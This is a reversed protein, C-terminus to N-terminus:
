LQVGDENDMAAVVVAGSGANDVVESDYM